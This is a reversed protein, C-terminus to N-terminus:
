STRLSAGLKQQLAAVIRSSYDNLQAETFTAEASQFTVRIMLSYKGPAIQGGRFLDGAEINQLEAIALSQVSEAVQAFRVGDDLVLSFDREVAPFRPLPKFRLAAATNEFSTLLPELKLEAVYVEQRFKFQEAIRKAIQGASGLFTQSNSAGKLSLRAAGAGALWQPGGTEWALGGAL